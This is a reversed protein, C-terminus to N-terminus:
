HTKSHKINTIVKNSEKKKIINKAQQTRVYKNGQVKIKKSSSMAKSNKKNNNFVENKKNIDPNKIITKRRLRTTIALQTHVYLCDAKSASSSYENTRRGDIMRSLKARRAKANM